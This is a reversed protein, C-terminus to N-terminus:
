SNKRNVPNGQADVNRALWLGAESLAVSSKVYIGARQSTSAVDLVNDIVDVRTFQTTSGFNINSKGGRARGRAILVDTLSTAQAMISAIGKTPCTLDFGVLELDAIVGFLQVCDNHTGDFHDPATASYFLDDVTLGYIRWHGPKGQPHYVGLGDVAKGISPDFLKYGHGHIAQAWM